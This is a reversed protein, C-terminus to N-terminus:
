ILDFLVSFLSELSSYLRVQVINGTAIQWIQIVQDNGASALYINDLSISFTKIWDSHGNALTRVCYGTGVEWLKITQDRSCTILQENNSFFSICSITHDHGKLTKVCTNTNMDWLKASM